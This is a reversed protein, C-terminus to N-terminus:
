LIAMSTCVNKKSYSINFYIYLTFMFIIYHRVIYIKFGRAICLLTPLYKTNFCETAILINGNGVKRWIILGNLITSNFAASQMTVLALFNFINFVEKGQILISDVVFFIKEYLIYIFLCKCMQMFANMFECICYVCTSFLLYFHKYLAFYMGVYKRVDMECAITLSHM